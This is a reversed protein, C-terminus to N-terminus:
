VDYSTQLSLCFSLDMNNLDVIRGYEDLIQITMNQINVPGFYRRPSTIINLNNQLLVTYTDAQLSIRALINKNLVSNTFASFYNNSVNNNHDDVVLYLYRFTNLDVLGESIYVSNNVYIGNRFGFIWGLKLPLPTSRDEIGFRNAQFNLSFSFSPSGTKLGVIMRGSGNGSTNDIKFVINSFNGGLTTMTDNLITLIGDFTYNGDPITILQSVGSADITFFNNGYQKSINYFTLPLEISDLQMTLVDNFQTPLIINFNTSQSNYYNERFRTDINLFYKNATRALPNLVGSFFETPKSTAYPYETRVQVMHENKDEIQTPKLDYNTHYINHSNFKEIAKKINTVESYVTECLINKAESLFNITKIKIDQNIESNNIISDRLKSEKIEVINKDYNPPLEFMDALEQKKYNKINLDFNPNM